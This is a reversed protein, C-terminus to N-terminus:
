YKSPNICSIITAAIVNNKTISGNPLIGSKMVISFFTGFSLFVFTKTLSSNKASTIININKNMPRCIKFKNSILCDENLMAPPITRKIMENLKTKPFPISEIADLSESLSGKNTGKATGSIAPGALKLTIKSKDAFAGVCVPLQNNANSRAKATLEITRNNLKGIELNKPLLPICAISRNIPRISANIDILM